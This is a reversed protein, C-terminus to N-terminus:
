APPECDDSPSSAQHQSDKSLISIHGNGELFSQSVSQINGIGHQRLLSALEDRSILEKELHKDIMRGNEVLLLPSREMLRGIVPYHFSLYNLIYEWGVIVSVLWIGDTVSEYNNAMANQSADAVLLLVLLDAPGLSGTQRRFVRLLFFLSLYTITGRIFIELPSLSPVFIRPWDLVLWEPM